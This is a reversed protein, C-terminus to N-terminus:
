KRQMKFPYTQTEVQEIPSSNELSTYLIPM